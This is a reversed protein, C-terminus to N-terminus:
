AGLRDLFSEFAAFFEDPAEYHVLAGTDFARETWNDRERVWDARSFDKFDGRTGHALFVPLELAEYVNRIDRSFLRGSLFAFPAREAGPQHSALYDYEVLDEDVAKSGYTRQLFYRITGKRTLLRYLPKGIAGVSLVPMFGPIERTSGPERLNEAGRSFGTPNILTLSRVREPREVTARAAFEGSLSLAVLDVPVGPVRADALDLVDHVADVYLRVDYTRESRDSRGFGPLDVALVTRRDRMRDFIPRMEFASAAANISHVLVLPRGDGAVYTVLRGARHTTEHESANVAPPLESAGM